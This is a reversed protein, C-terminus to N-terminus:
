LMNVPDIDVSARAQGLGEDIRAVLAVSVARLLKRDAGRLLMRFRYRGRIRPITAPAPGLLRIRGDAVAPHKSAVQALTQAARQAVGEDGADVRVAVLRAFPAYNLDRRDHLEQEYFREYDHTKACVVASHDPQYTQLVVRGEEEGRGARGSVQALLQFTRESARFDPFALSQDALLVGVLTVGPLDHGKAVMQTGVLIDIEKRRMRRLVDEVGEGTTATDRDLRGVRAGSFTTALVDAIRETGVGIPMLELAGCAPCAQTTPTSFDCYHCRLLRASRHETLAVACAPCNMVTNCADCRMSPSFGRRNLFLIAQGQNALCNEIARHLPASLLPHGSPTGRNRGLDVVEVRPLARPTAREKLTLLTLRGNQAAHYTEISPTASGLICIASARHARLLAMDRANYRFGEEQKFSSDHEEDVVIVGLNKVPAFIASRAGVALTVDGRRLSRWAQNREKDSLGSHLVAIGDGFRARFRSVLQPTLAIEPVLLIAGRGKARAEAITHLYVETKGSGTVGHLLFGKAEKKQLADILTAVAKAQPAHLEPPTDRDVAERFYPDRLVEREEIECLGKTVLAKVLPLPNRVALRLDEMSLTGRETLVSLVDRQRASLKIDAFDKKTLHVFRTKQTAVSAGKLSENESLSGDARLNKIADKSLAPSAARLVEGVPHLYYDAAERLFGILESPFVPEEDLVAVVDRLKRTEGVIEQDIATVIGAVKRPGFPVLVRMGVVIRERLLLPVSYTFAQRLPVPVAVEVREKAAFSM